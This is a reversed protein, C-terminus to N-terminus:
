KLAERLINIKHLTMSKLVCSNCVYGSEKYVNNEVTIRAYCDFYIGNIEKLEKGCQICNM